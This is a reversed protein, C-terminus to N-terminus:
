AADSLASDPLPQGELAHLLEERTVLIEVEAERLETSSKPHSINVLGYIGLTSLAEFFDSAPMIDWGKARCSKTHAAYAEKVEIQSNCQRLTLTNLVMQMQFPLGRIVRGTPSVFFQSALRTITQFSVEGSGRAAELLDFAARIDGSTQAVKKACFTLALPEIAVGAFRLALIDTIQDETYTEFLMVEPQINRHKIRSLLRETLNVANAITILLVKSNPLFPLSFLTEIIKTRANAVLKDVEDVVILSLPAAPVCLAAKVQTELSRLSLGSVSLGHHQAIDAFLDRECTYSMGNSEVVPGLRRRIAKRRRVEALAAVLTYTKGTGPRGCIYLSGPKGAVLAAEIKQVLTEFESTRGIMPVPPDESQHASKDNLKAKKRGPMALIPISHSTPM